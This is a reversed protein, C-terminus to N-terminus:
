YWGRYRTLMARSQVKSKIRGNPQFTAAVKPQFGCGPALPCQSRQRAGNSHSRASTSNAEGPSPCIFSLLNESSCIMEITFSCSAAVPVIQQDILFGADGIDGRVALVRDVPDDKLRIAVPRAAARDGAIREVLAQDPRGSTGPATAQAINATKGEERGVTASRLRRVSLMAGGFQHTKGDRRDSFSGNGSM